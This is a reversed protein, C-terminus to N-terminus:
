RAEGAKALLEITRRATAAWDFEAARELGRKRLDDRLGEDNLVSEITKALEDADAPEFYLAADGGIEPLSSTRAAIVPVGHAMAELLPFGFGEYLSPFVFLDANRYLAGLDGRAVYHLHIMSASWRSRRIRELTRESKWGVKGAIVLSGSYRDRDKLSEFADILTDLNKRPEITSVFLLYPPAPTKTEIRDSFIPPLGSHITVARHPDIDYCALLDHRTAESVCLIADARFIERAMERELNALTESQLLEPYRRWTLDHVTVVRRRAVASLARPLFYNAGLVVDCDEIWILLPFAVRALAVGLPTIVQEGFDFARLSTRQPRETHILPTTNTRIPDGFLLLEIDNESMEHLLHHLYWGIGTLPEYFPRIDIGIRLPQREGKLRRMTRSLRRFLSAGLTRTVISILPMTVASSAAFRKWPMMAAAIVRRSRSVIKRALTRIM